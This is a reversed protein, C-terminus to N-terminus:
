AWVKKDNRFTEKRIKKLVPLLFVVSIRYVSVSFTGNYLGWAIVETAKMLLVFDNIFHLSINAISFLITMVSLSIICREVIGEKRVTFFMLCLAVPLFFMLLNFLMIVKMGGNAMSGTVVVAFNANFALGTILLAWQFTALLHPVIKREVVKRLQM